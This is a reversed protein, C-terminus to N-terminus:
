LVFVGQIEQKADKDTKAPTAAEVAGGKGPKKEELDAKTRITLAQLPIALTNQKSATTIKATTSLGPRLNEPPNNITVVVKFDKAEQSGSTTQTTAVGTSRVMANDGIETVHGKFTQGPIADITVDAPQGIKVNVIDTEDVKVEATIVSLDAITMLTSGPSNQIGIVVTEGERVPLNTVVGDFPSIYTTKSLVDSARRLTAQQQTIRVNASDHQAQAQALAAAAGEYATKKTDYESEPILGSEFLGKARQYESKTRDADSLARKYGAEMAVADSKAVTLGASNAAVDAESQVTEWRALIPGTKVQQGEKVYLKIIKGFANAGVNVFNKPRIEGSASVISTLSQRTVRGTQVTVVGENKKHITFGVVALVLLAIVAIILIKKKLTM